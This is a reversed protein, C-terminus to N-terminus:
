ENVLRIFPDGQKDAVGGRALARLDEERKRQGAAMDRQVNSEKM